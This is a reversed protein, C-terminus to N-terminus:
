REAIIDDISPLVDQSRHFHTAAIRLKVLHFQDNDMHINGNFRLKTTDM